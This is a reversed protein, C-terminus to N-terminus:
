GRSLRLSIRKVELEPYRKQVELLIDRQKTQLIQVWGPHDAEVYLIGKELEWIKSHFAVEPIKRRQSGEPNQGSEPDNAADEPRSGEATNSAYSANGYEGDENEVPFIKGIIDTWSSFIGPKTRYSGNPGESGIIGFKDRFMELLVDGAKKM